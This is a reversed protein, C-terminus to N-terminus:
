KKAAVLSCYVWNRNCSVQQKSITSTSFGLIKLIGHAEADFILFRGLNAGFVVCEQLRFQTYEKFLEGTRTPGAPRVGKSITELLLKLGKDELLDEKPIKAGRAAVYAEGRLANYLRAGLAGFKKKTEETYGVAIAEVRDLYEDLLEPEGAYVPVGGEFVLSKPEKSSSAAMAADTFRFEFEAGDCIDGLIDVLEAGGIHFAGWCPGKGRSCHPSLGLGWTSNRGGIVAAVLLLICWTKSCASHM